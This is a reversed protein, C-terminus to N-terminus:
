EIRSADRWFRIYDVLESVKLSLIDVTLRTQDLIYCAYYQKAEPDAAIIPQNDRIAQRNAELLTKAMHNQTEGLFAVLLMRHNAIDQQLRLPIDGDVILDCAGRKDPRLPPLGSKACFARLLTDYFLASM